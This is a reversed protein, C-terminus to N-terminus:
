ARYLSVYEGYAASVKEVYRAMQPYPFEALTNETAAYAPDALLKDVTGWGSHYGACATALDGAYRELCCDLYYSGFRINVEPDWLDDFDLPEDNAIKLKIWAFTEETIQMLGRAGVDSQAQEDFGSETRIVAYIMLPDMEYEQAYCEVIQSYKMPYSYEKMQRILRPAAWIGILLIVLLFFLMLRYRHSKTM